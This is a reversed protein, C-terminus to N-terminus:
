IMNKNIKYKIEAIKWDEKNDIDQVESEPIILPVTNETFLQKCLLFKKVKLWYFQGADHYVPILDQSRKNLNDPWIM